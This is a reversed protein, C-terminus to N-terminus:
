PSHDMVFPGIAVSGGTSRGLLRLTWRSRPLSRVVEGPFVLIVEDRRRDAHVERRPPATVTGSALDRFEADLVLSRLEGYDGALRVVVLDEPGAKCDVTTGAALRYERWTLGDAAARGLFSENVNVGLEGRRAAEGVAAGLRELLALRAGCHACAFLHDEFAAATAPEPSDFLYELLEAATLPCPAPAVTV